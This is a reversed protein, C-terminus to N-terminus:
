RLLLLDVLGLDQVRGFSAHFCGNLTGFSEVVDDIPLAEYHGVNEPRRVSLKPVHEHERCRVLRAKREENGLCLQFM